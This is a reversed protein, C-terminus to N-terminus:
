PHGYFEWQRRLKDNKKKFIYIVCTSQTYISELELVECTLSRIKKRYLIIVVGWFTIIQKSDSLTQFFLRWFGRNCGSFLDLCMRRIRPTVETKRIPSKDNCTNRKYKLQGQTTLTLGRHSVEPSTFNRIETEKIKM